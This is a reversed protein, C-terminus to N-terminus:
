GEGAIMATWRGQLNGSTCEAQAAVPFVSALLAIPLLKM